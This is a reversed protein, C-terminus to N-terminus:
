LHLHKFLNMSYARQWAAFYLFILFSLTSTFFNASIKTIINSLYGLILFMIVIILYPMILQKINKLSTFPKILSDFFKRTNAFVYNSYNLIHLVFPMFIIFTIIAIAQIILFPTNISYLKDLFFGAIAMLLSLILIIFAYIIVGLGSFKLTQKIDFEKSWIWEKFLGILYIVALGLMILSLILTFYFVNLNQTSQQIDSISASLISNADFNPVPPMSKYIILNYIMFIIMLSIYFLLDKGMIKYINNDMFTQKLMDLQNTKKTLM